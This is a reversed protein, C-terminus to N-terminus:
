WEIPQHIEDAIHVPFMWVITKKDRHDMVVATFSPIILWFDSGMDEGGMRFREKNISSQQKINKPTAADAWTFSSGNLSRVLPYLYTIKSFSYPLVSASVRGGEM